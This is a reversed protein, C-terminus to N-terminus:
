NTALNCYFWFIPVKGAAAELVESCRDFATHEDPPLVAVVDREKGRDHSELLSESLVNAKTDPKSRQRQAGAAEVETTSSSVSNLISSSGQQM